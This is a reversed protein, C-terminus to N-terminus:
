AVEIGLLETLEATPIPWWTGGDINQRHWQGRLVQIRPFSPAFDPERAKAETLKNLASALHSPEYPLAGDPTLLVRM